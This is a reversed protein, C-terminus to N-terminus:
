SVPLSVTFVAGQGPTSEARIWGGHNEAVKKAISLGVGTGAYEDKGHLRTFMQFIKEAYRPEFGIGNDRVQIHYVPVGKEEAKRASLEVVPPVGARCYKLANSILNQFLQQLQRRYGMVRPMGEYLVVAKKTEVEVELDELVARIEEGLDVAEKEHPKQSVHSYLLLDDVLHSMRKTAKDMKDLTRWEAEKGDPDLQDKLINTFLQIKRIPEKLDHSAAHAFEELHQNSRELEGIKDLLELQLHKLRTFDTFYVVVQEDMRTASMQNYLDLGDQDYHIEWSQPVGTRYTEAVNTFSSTQLYGPFVESVRRGQLAEPTTNAYASYAANTLKYRFDTIIGNEIVPELVQLPECSLNILNQLYSNAQLLSHHAAKLEATRRAVTEEIERRSNVHATTEMCTVLVGCIAGSDGYAPSYSFTWYVNELTGNRFIPLLQDEYWAPKGTAMVNRILPGIFDWTEPWVEKGRLGLAPHKGNEGLSPRFADNYFCLLEDGWFLFMPFASHLLNSLTIRLSLPWQRVPGLPTRSWDYSRIREGM